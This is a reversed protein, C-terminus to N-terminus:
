TKKSSNLFDFTHSYVTRSNQPEQLQKTSSELRRPSYATYDQIYKDSTQFLRLAKTKMTLSNINEQVAQGQHHLNQLGKLIDTNISWDIRHLM